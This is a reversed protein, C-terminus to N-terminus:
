EVATIVFNQSNQQWELLVSQGLRPFDEVMCEGEAGRLFEHGLTTVRVTARGLEEGDVFAVVEHEGEELLNWNFLLGFGNDTDGCMELTDVRETGYAAVQRGATGIAIEVTDADCVWGSLVRVGSQFSNHGPNELFGTLTSTRGPTAGDPPSGGAIVFNQSNQQWVLTAREGVVPFDAAECTGTVGRLFEQGLTTVTVTARGLEVGDVLAVVEHEGDRLLNWNFLLGFGNDTDGCARLTDLRETGYAAEQPIGNLEIEVVAAECVWGSLVGVGSQFSDAGPNELYGQVFTIEVAYAGTAGGQGQVAVVVLGPQVRAGLRDDPPRGTSGSALVVDNQWITGRTQVGSTTDVFVLGQVPVTVTFYDVDAAPCIAGATVASLAIDTSQAASNGHLDEACVPGGGGGGGPGPGPPSIVPPRITTSGMATTIIATNNEPLRDTVDSSIKAENTLSNGLDTDVTVVVTIEVTSDEELDDLSCTIVDNGSGDQSEACRSDSETSVLSVPRDVTSTLIVDTATAPGQNTITYAYTLKDGLLVRNPSGNGILQLDVTSAIDDIITVTTTLDGELLHPVAPGAYALTATFDENSEDDTDEVISVTFDKVAQYRPQGNVTGRRFDSHNFTVQDSLSVYDDPQTASGDATTVIVDFTFSDEPRKDTTTIALARLSVSGDDENVAVETQEWTLTVPVHDDDTITVRARANGGQLHTLTPNAYALTATFDENPEDDTDDVIPITFDEAAQYRPQGNVTVPSFDRQSFTARDSLQTYDAPQTASGDATTVIVDFSLGGEPAKDKTTTVIALFTAAGANEEVTLATRGWALTVPVHDDDTVTTQASHPTGPVYGSGSRIEVTVVSDAEDTTDADLNVQLSATDSNASFSATTPRGGALMTGTETVRVNVRLTADLVGTRRLTFTLPQAEGVTAADATISVHPDDNDTITVMATAPGGQLHSLGPNAYALTATFAENAEDDADDVITVTFDQVARYRPQGGVTTRSFHLGSFSATTVLRTYDGPQAATGDATAVTVGFSFGPGPQTDETTTAVARLTVSGAGEAVSVATRQWSLTVSVQPETSATPTGTSTASWLGDAGANVARMQVDYQTTNTLGGLTYEYRGHTWVTDRVTWKDDAKDTASSEIYRLDYATISGGGTDSPANWSVALSRNGSDVSAITPQGPPGQPTGGTPGTWDGDSHSNVARMEARYRVGNELGRITYRLEGSTWADDVLTWNSYDTWDIRNIDSLVYRVDYAIVPRVGSERPERWRLTLTGNGVTPSIFPPTSPGIRLAAGTRTASWPGEGTANVARVQVDKERFSSIDTVRHELSGSTWADDIVIWRNDPKDEWSSTIHRIDYATIASSGRYVPASWAVKLTRHGDAVVSTIAPAAPTQQGTAQLTDSWRGDGDSSVARMQIDYSVGSELGTMTYALTGSTWADDVVTWNAAAKDSADTKISRLDYATIASDGVDEPATWAVALTTGGSTVSTIAPVGPLSGHGFIRLNWSKLTGDNGNIWDKVRLTWIGAAAEGLHRASGFRFSSDWEFPKYSRYPASLISVAGSPSVLELELDRYSDHTFDVNVEVFEVFEVYSDMTITSSAQTPEGTTVPDPIALDVAGSEEKAIKMPPLTTWGDALDVAAKADVVGFGYNHNYSYRETTSGYKLAGTQWGSNPNDDWGTNTSDNKRASAALILKVDRWALDPNAKRVLAAVGSVQPVAASTGGFDGTYRSYNRTTAIRQREERFIADDDSPACVWLNPGRESYLSRVGQDNVACATTVAYYNGLEDHNSYAWSQAGNGASFVYFIGKGGYGRTVGADLALDWFAPRPRYRFNNLSSWSNNSVAVSAMNRTMADVANELTFGEALINYAYLTARPAVGRMGLSNDRAAILGAVRTGHTEHARLLQDEGRYDHSLATDVNDQLDEHNPDLGDDVVAVTIGEGRNGGAWVETVNIDEGATGGNQGTNDLHWQCGFLADGYSTTIASCDDLFDGYETDELALIAYPGTRLQGAEPNVVVKIYYTGAALTDQLFFGVGPPLQQERLNVTVSDGNSDLLTGDINIRTGSEIVAQIIVHTSDALTLRFYDTDNEPNITGGAIAGLTLTRATPLTSGPETVRTVSLTYPGTFAGVLTVPGLPRWAKIYYTGAQLRELILFSNYGDPLRSNGGKTILQGNSDYLEGQLELGGTARIVLDAAGTLEFTFYDVDDYPAIVGAVDTGVMFETATAQTDGHDDPTGTASLSWPGDGTANVARVQVDYETGNTLGDVTYELSGSTWVAYLVTWNADAKDTADTEIHRLDYATIDSGGTSAPATWAVTLSENGEVVSDIAPATPVSAQARVEGSALLLCLLACVAAIGKFAPMTRAM